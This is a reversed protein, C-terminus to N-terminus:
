AQCSRNLLELGAGLLYAHAPTQLPLSSYPVPHHVSAQAEEPEM